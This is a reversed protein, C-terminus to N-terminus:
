TMLEEQAEHRVEDAGSLVLRTTVALPHDCRFAVFLQPQPRHPDLRRPDEILSQSTVTPERV